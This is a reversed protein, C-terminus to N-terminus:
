FSYKTPNKQVHSSTKNSLISLEQWGGKVSYNLLPINYQRGYEMNNYIISGGNM